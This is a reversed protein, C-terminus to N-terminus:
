LLIGPASGILGGASNAKFILPASIQVGGKKIVLSVEQNAMGGSGSVGIVAATVNANYNIEKLWPISTLQENITNGTAGTYSAIIQGSFNGTIEFQLTRSNNSPSADERDSCSLFLPLLTFVVLKIKREINLILNM